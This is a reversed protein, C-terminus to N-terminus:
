RGSRIADLFFAVLDEEFAAGERLWATAHGGHEVVRLQKPQAARDFLERGLALPLKRDDSGHIVYLPRPPLLSLADVPELGESVLLPVLWAFDRPKGEYRVRLLLAERGDRYGLVAEQAPERLRDGSRAVFCGDAGARAACLLALPLLSTAPLMRRM